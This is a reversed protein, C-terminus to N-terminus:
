GKLELLKKLHMMEERVLEDVAAIDSKNILLKMGHLFLISDKEFEIAM